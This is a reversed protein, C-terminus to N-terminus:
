AIEKNMLDNTIELLDRETVGYASEFARKGMGHYGRSSRHHIACLGITMDHPARQSMGQGDRLHHIEAPTGPTGLHHCLVCGMDALKGYRIREARTM